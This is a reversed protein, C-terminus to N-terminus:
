SQKRIVSLAVGGAAMAAVIGLGGLVFALDRSEEHVRAIQRANEVAHVSDAQEAIDEARASIEDTRAHSVWLAILFMTMVAILAVVVPRILHLAPAPMAM